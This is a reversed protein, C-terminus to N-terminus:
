PTYSFVKGDNGRERNEGYGKQCGSLEGFLSAGKESSELSSPTSTM